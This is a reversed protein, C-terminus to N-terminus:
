NHIARAFLEKGVGTEGLILVTADTAAVQEVLRKAKTMAPGQGIIEEFNHSVKIEQRLYQNEAQLREKLREVEALCPALSRRAAKRETIDNFTVVAGILEGGEDRVPTSVYEVPFSSGDKRWFVENDERHVLGDTIAAYIPCESRPYPEGSPKTHHILDHQPKGLMEEASWGMM